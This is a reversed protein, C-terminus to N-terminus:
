PRPLLVANMLCEDLPYDSYDGAWHKLSPNYNVKVEIVKDLEDYGEEYATVLVLKDPSHKQLETILEGVTMVYM